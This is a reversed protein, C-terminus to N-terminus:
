CCFMGSDGPGVSVIGDNDACLMEQTIVTPAFFVQCNQNTVHQLIGTQPFIPNTQIPPFTTSGWGFAELNQRNAPVNPNQNLVVPRIFTIQLNEPLFILAVDNVLTEPNWNPHRVVFAQGGNCGIGFENTCLPITLVGNREDDSQAYRNVDIAVNPDFNSNDRQTFCDQSCTFSMCPIIYLFYTQTSFLAAFFTNRCERAASLIVRRSVLTAGCQHGITGDGNLRRIDILYRRSQQWVNRDLQTGGIVSPGVGSSEQLALASSKMTHGNKVSGLGVGLCIALVVFAAATVALKKLRSQTRQQVIPHSDNAIAVASDDNNEDHHDHIIPIAVPQQVARPKSAFHEELVHNIEVGYDEKM